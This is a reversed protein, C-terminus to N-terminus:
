RVFPTDPRRTWGICYKVNSVQAEILDIEPASRGTFTGDAKKPGPHSKDNPCTCASLRQGSLYSLSGNFPAWEVGSTTAIEPVGITSSGPARNTSPDPRLTNNRSV